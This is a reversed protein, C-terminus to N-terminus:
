LRGSGYNLEQRGVRLAIWNEGSTSVELFAAEFDLRKADIPRAGGQRFSQLGSKLQVFARVHKGFHWDTHVMYRQLFFQNTFPQKGWNDNGVQELVERVEGGVTLYWGYRLRIYKIPDWFDERQSRDELFSWDENERLLNYSRTVPQARLLLSTAALLIAWRFM